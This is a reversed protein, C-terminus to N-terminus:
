PSGDSMPTANDSRVVHISGNDSLEDSEKADHVDHIEAEHGAKALLHRLKLNEQELKHAHNKMLEM